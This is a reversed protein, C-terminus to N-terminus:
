CQILFGNSECQFAARMYADLQLDVIEGATKNALVNIDEILQHFCEPARWRRQGARNPKLGPRRIWVQAQGASFFLVM